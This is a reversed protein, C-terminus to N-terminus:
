CWCKVAEGYNVALSVAGLGIYLQETVGTQVGTSFVWVSAIGLDEGPPSGVISGGGYQLEM